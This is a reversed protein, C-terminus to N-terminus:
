RGQRSIKFYNEREKSIYRGLKAWKFFQIILLLQHFNLTFQFFVWFNYM